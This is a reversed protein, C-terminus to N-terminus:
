ASWLWGTVIAAVDWTLDLVVLWFLMWGLLEM